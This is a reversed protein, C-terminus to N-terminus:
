EESDVVYLIATQDDNKDIRALEFLQSLVFGEDDLSCDGILERIEYEQMRGFAGDSGILFIDGKDLGGIDKCAIDEIDLETYQGLSNYLRHDNAYYEASYREYYGSKVEAEAQTQLESVLKLKGTKARYFYVPSDGVNAVIAYRDVVCVVSLTTGTQEFLAARGCVEENAMCIAKRVIERMEDAFYSMSFNEIDANIYKEVMMEYFAKSFGKIANMSAKEGEELGGMGDAVILLQIKQDEMFSYESFLCRDENTKHSASKSKETQTYVRYKM